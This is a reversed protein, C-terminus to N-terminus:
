VPAEGRRSVASASPTEIGAMRHAGETGTVAASRSRTGSTTARAANPRANLSAEARENRASSVIGTPGIRASVLLVVLAVLVLAALLSGLVQRGYSRSPQGDVAMILEPLARRRDGM